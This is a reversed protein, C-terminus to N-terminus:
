SVDYDSFGYLRRLKVGEVVLRFYRRLRCIAGVTKIISRDVVCTTRCGCRISRVGYWEWRCLSQYYM